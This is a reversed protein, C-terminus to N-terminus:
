RRRRYVFFLRGVRGGLRAYPVLPGVWQVEVRSRGMARLHHLAGVLLPEGVGKGILDPRSAIPGLTGAQNVDFACFGIIDHADRRVLLSGQDFARIVEHRWIPWHRAMWQELEPRDEARPASALGPDPPLSSLDIDVNYNTEERAYHHRELLCCLSTEEVPVGPFLFYPADAGVTVVRAGELDGEAAGLLEHGLGRGRLEPDLLLLRVYGDEGDRVSAVVGAGSAFRVVAPQDPAFLSRRLEEVSPSGPQVRACFAAIDVNADPGVVPLDIKV